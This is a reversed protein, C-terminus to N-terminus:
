VEMAHGAYVREMDVAVATPKVVQRDFVIFAFPNDKDAVETEHAKMFDENQPRRVIFDRRRSRVAELETSREKPSMEHLRKWNGYYLDLVGEPVKCWPAPKGHDDLAPVIWVQNDWALLADIPALKVITPQVGRANDGFKAMQSYLMDLNVVRGKEAQEAAWQEGGRFFSIHDVEMKRPRLASLNRVNVIVTEDSANYPRRHGQDEPAHGYPASNVNYREFLERGTALNAQGSANGISGM